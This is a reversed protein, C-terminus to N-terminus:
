QEEEKVEKFLREEFQALSTEYDALKQELRKLAQEIKSKEEILRNKEEQLIRQRTLLTKDGAPILNMYSTLSDISMGAARFCHIFELIAIDKDSFKRIGSDTREIPPLLGIREYYRITDASLGTALSAQKINM